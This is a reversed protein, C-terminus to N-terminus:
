TLGLKKLHNLLQDKFGNESYKLYIPEKTCTGTFCIEIKDYGIQMEVASNKKCKRFLEAAFTKNQEENQADPGKQKEKCAWKLAQALSTRIKTDPHLAWGVANIVTKEDYAKHIQWKDSDPINVSELCHYLKAQSSAAAPAPPPVAAQQQQEEQIAVRNTNSPPPNELDPFALDPNERLLLSKNLKVEEKLIIIEEKSDSIVTEWYEVEGKENRCQYRFGYGQDICEKITSYIADEGEKLKATLYEVHFKWNDTKSLCYTIFGKSKLSLDSDELMCNLVQTFKFKRDRVGRVVSM